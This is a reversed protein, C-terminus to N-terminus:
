EYYHKTEKVILVVAFLPYLVFFDFIRSFFPCGNNVPKVKVQGIHWIQCM